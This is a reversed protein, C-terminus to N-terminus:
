EIELIPMPLEDLQNQHVTTRRGDLWYPLKTIRAQYSGPTIPESFTALIMLKFNTPTEAPVAYRYKETLPADSLVLGSILEISGDFLEESAVTYGLVDVRDNYAVGERALLPIENSFDKDEIAFDITFLATRENLQLATAADAAVPTLLLALVFFINKM